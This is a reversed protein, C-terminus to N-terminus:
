YRDMSSRVSNIANLVRMNVSNPGTQKTYIYRAEALLTCMKSRADIKEISEDIARILKSLKKEANLQNIANEEKCIKDEFDSMKNCLIQKFRDCEMVFGPNEICLEMMDIFAIKMEDGDQCMEMKRMLYLFKMAVGVFEQPVVSNNVPINEQTCCSENDSQEGTIIANIREKAIVKAARPMTARPMTARPMTARSSFM